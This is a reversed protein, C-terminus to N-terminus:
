ITVKYVYFILRSSMTGVAKEKNYMVSLFFALVADRRRVSMM